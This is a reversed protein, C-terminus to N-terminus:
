PTEGEDRWRKKGLKATTGGFPAAIGFAVGKEKSPLIFRVKPSESPAGDTM